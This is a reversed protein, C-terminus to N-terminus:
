ASEALDIAEEITKVAEDVKRETQLYTSKM